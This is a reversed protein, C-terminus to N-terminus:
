SSTLLSVCLVMPTSVQLGSVWMYPIVKLFLKAPLRLHQCHASFGKVILETSLFHKTNQLFWKWMRRRRCDLMKREHNVPCSLFYFGMPPIVSLDRGAVKSAWQLLSCSHSRWLSDVTSMGKPLWHKHLPGKCFFCLWATINPPYIVCTKQKESNKNRQM